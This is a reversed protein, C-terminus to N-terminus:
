PLVEQWEQIEQTPCYYGGGVVLTFIYQVLLNYLIEADETFSQGSFRICHNINDEISDWQSYYIVTDEERLLYYIPIGHMSNQRFAAGSFDLGFDEFNTSSLKPVEM